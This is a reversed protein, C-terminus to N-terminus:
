GKTTILAPLSVDRWEATIYLTRQAMHAKDVQLASEYSRVFTEFEDRSKIAGAYRWRGLEFEPNWWPVRRQVTFGHYFGDKPVCRYRTKM